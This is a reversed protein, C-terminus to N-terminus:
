SLPCARAVLGDEGGAQDVPGDPRQPGLAEVALRVDHGGHERHVLLVRVVHEGHGASRRGQAERLSREAAGDAGHAHGLDVARPDDVGGVLLDVLAGDVQDHGAGVVGDAHDFGAAFLDVLGVDDGPELDGVLGDLLLHSTM